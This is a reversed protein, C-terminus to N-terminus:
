FPEDNEPDKHAPVVNARAEKVGERYAANRAQDLTEGGRYPWERNMIICAAAWLLEDQQLGDITRGNENISWHTTVNGSHSESSVVEQLIITRM